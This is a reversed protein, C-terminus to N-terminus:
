AAQPAHSTDGEIQQADTSVRDKFVMRILAPTLTVDLVLAMIVTMGILGGFRQLAYMTAGLFVFFGASLIVSTVVLARGSHHLTHQIADEVVGHKDYHWKFQHLFHITDDVAIGLAISAVMLNAMDIPIDGFGMIGLIFIIPFLNPVMAIVGLKVSRLMFMLLIAIVSFAVGFTKLLDLLLAGVTSLLQFVTGTTRVTVGEPMYEKIGQEIYEAFPKYGNAELWKLRVTMQTKSGDITMLRKLDDPGQNGFMFFEENLEAQTDAIVWQEPDGDRLARHSERLVDLVSQTNGALDGLEPHEFAKIHKDLKELGKVTELKKVADADETTVLIQLNSTGGLESDAIDAAIRIPFDTPIWSLPNHWVRTLTAGYVAIAVAILAVGLVRGSRGNKSLGVMFQLFRDIFDPGEKKSVGLLSKKNFSLTTPLVVFTHLMALTVAFAGVTGMERIATVKAFYFSLLGMSTTLTTFLIPLGTSALAGVIAERNERGARRLDRYVSQLHVSDAVGVCIVFSPLITTIMTMTLGFTAMLGLTWIISLIVVSIPGIVGLPHRFMVFLVFSLMIIASGFFFAMDSLMLTQLAAAIAPMGALHVEFDDAEYKKMLEELKASVRGSDNEDMFATRVVLASYTGSTNVVQGLLTQDPAINNEPDGLVSKKLALVEAETTPFPDMLDGVSFGGDGGRTRRVSVISITEDVISGGAEDGWGEDAEGEFDLDSDMSVSEDEFDDDGFDEDGFDDDASESTPEAQAYYTPRKSTRTSLGFKKRKDRDAKREGLSKLDMNLDRIDKELAKVKKLYPLSFVDGKMIVLFVDDRGFEDRFEELTASLEANDSAFAEISSDFVLHNKIQVVALATVAIIIAMLIFRASLVVRAWGAFFPSPSEKLDSV